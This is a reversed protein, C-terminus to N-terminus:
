KPKKHEKTVTKSGICSTQLIDNKHDSEVMVHRRYAFQHYREAGFVIALLEKEIQAYNRETTTQARNAYAVPKGDQM